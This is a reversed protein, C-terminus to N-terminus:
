CLGRGPRPMSHLASAMVSYKRAAIRSRPLTRALTQHRGQEGGLHVTVPEGLVLHDGIADDRHHPPLLRGRVQDAVAHQRQQAMGVLELAQPAVRRQDRGRDLLQQAVLTGALVGSAQRGLVDDEAVLEDAAALGDDGHHPGGVAIGSAKGVGVAEIEAPGVVTVEGEAPGRVEAESRRQGPDLALDGERRQQPPEGVQV